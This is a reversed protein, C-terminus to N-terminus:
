AVNSSLWDVLDSVKDFDDISTEGETIECDFQLEAKMVIDVFDLDDLWGKVEGDIETTPAITNIVSLCRQKVDAIFDNGKQTKDSTENEKGM